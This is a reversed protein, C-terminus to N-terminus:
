CLVDWGIYQATVDKQAMASIGVVLMVALLLLKTLRKKM